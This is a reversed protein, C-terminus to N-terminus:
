IWSFLPNDDQRSAHVAEMQAADAGPISDGTGARQAVPGCLSNLVHFARAVVNCRDRLWPRDELQLKQDMHQQILRIGPSDWNRFRKLVASRSAVSWHHLAVAPQLNPPM